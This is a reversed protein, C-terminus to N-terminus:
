WTRNVGYADFAEDSSLMTLGEVKAQAALMRDFPDKHNRIGPLDLTAWAHQGEIPLDRAGLSRAENPIDSGTQIKGLSSKIAIEWYSVVSVSLDSSEAEIVSRATTSLREPSNLWWLLTHTDLLWGTM